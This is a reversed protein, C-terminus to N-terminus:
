GRGALSRLWENPDVNGTGGAAQILDPEDFEPMDRVASFVKKRLVPDSKIREPLENEFQERVHKEHLKFATTVIAERGKMPDAAKQFAERLEKHGSEPVTKWLPAFVSQDISSTISQIVQSAAEGDGDQRIREAEAEGLEFTEGHDALWKKAPGHNQAALRRIRALNGSEADEVATNWAQQALARDTRSQEERRTREADDTPAQTAETTPKADGAEPDTGSADQEPQDGKEGGLLGGFLRQVWGPQSQEQVEAGSAAGQEAAVETPQGQDDAIEGADVAM